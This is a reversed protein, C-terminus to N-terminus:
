LDSSHRPSDCSVCRFMPENAISVKQKLYKIDGWYAKEMEAPDTVICDPHAEPYGAVAIGFYDGYSSRCIYLEGESDM